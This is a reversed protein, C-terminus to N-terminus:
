CLKVFHFQPYPQLPLSYFFLVFSWLISEVKVLVKEFQFVFRLLDVTSDLHCLGGTLDSIVCFVGPGEKKRQAREREEEGRDIRSRDPSKPCVAVYPCSVTIQPQSETKQPMVTVLFPNFSDVGRLAPRYNTYSCDRLMACIVVGCCIRGGLTRSQLSDQKM